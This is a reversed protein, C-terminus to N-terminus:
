MGSNVAWISIGVSLSVSNECNRELCPMISYSSLVWLILISGSHFSRIGSSFYGAVSGLFATAVTM